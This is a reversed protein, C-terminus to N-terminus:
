LVFLWYYILKIAESFVTSLGIDSKWWNNKTIGLESPITVIEVGSNEFAKEFALKTRKSHYSESIVIIRKFNKQLFKESVQKALNMTIPDKPEIPLKNFKATDTTFELTFLNIIKDIHKPVEGGTFFKNSQPKFHTIYIENVVNQRHLSDAIKIMTPEPVIWNEIVLADYKGNIKDDSDVLDYISSFLLNGFLFYIILFIIIVFLIKSFARKPVIRM